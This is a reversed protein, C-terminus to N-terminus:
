YGPVSEVAIAILPSPNRQGKWHYVYAARDSALTLSTVRRTALDSTAWGIFSALVQGDGNGDRSHDAELFGRLAVEARGASSAVVRASLGAHRVKTATAHYNCVAPYCRSFLKDTVREPVDWETGAAADAPPVFSACDEPTLEVWDDGPGTSSDAGLPRTWVHLVLGGPSVPRPAGPSPATSARVADPDRPKLHRDDIVQRLMDLLKDPEMAQSVILSAVPVGSPDLVYASVNGHSMGKAAAARRLREAEAADAADRNAGTYDDRSLFVPVFYAALLRVVRDDSLSSARM